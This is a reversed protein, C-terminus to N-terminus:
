VYDLNGAISIRYENSTYFPYVAHLLSAPFIIMHGENKKDIKLNSTFIGGPVDMKPYLFSFVGAMKQKSKSVSLNKHEDELLYPIKVWIVFSLVGGHNHPPNVEGAKMFNIWVDPISKEVKIKMNKNSNDVNHVSKKWYEKSLINLFENLRAPGNDYVYEKEINGVLNYNYDKAGIYNKKQLKDVDDNIQSMLTLPITSKLYHIVNLNFTNIQVPEQVLDNM